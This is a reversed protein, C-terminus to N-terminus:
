LFGGPVFSEMLDSRDLRGNLRQLARLGRMRCKNTTEERITDIKVYAVSRHNGDLVIRTPKKCVKDAFRFSRTQKMFDESLIGTTFAAIANEGFTDRSAYKRKVKNVCSLCTTHLLWSYSEHATGMSCIVRYPCFDEYEILLMTTCSTCVMVVEGGEDDPLDDDPM